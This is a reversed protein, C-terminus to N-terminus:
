INSKYMDSHRLDSILSCSLPNKTSNAQVSEPAHRHFCSSGSGWWPPSQNRHKKWINKSPRNIILVTCRYPDVHITPRPNLPITTQPQYDKTGPPTPLPCWFILTVLHMVAAFDMSVLAFFLSGFFVITVLVYYYWYIPRVGLINIGTILIRLTTVQLFSQLERLKWLEFDDCKVPAHGGHSPKRQNRQQHHFALQWTGLDCWPFISFRFGSSSTRSNNHFGNFVWLTFWLSM